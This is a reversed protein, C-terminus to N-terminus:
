CAPKEVRGRRKFVVHLSVRASFVSDILEVAGTTQQKSVM